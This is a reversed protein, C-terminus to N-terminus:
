DMTGEILATSFLRALLRPWSASVSRLLLYNKGRNCLFLFQYGGISKCRCLISTFCLFGAITFLSFNYLSNNAVSKM